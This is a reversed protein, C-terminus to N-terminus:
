DVTPVNVITHDRLYTTATIPTFEWSYDMGLGAGAINLVFGARTGTGSALYIPRTSASMTFDTVRSWIDFYPSDTQETVIPKAVVFGVTNVDQNSGTPYNGDVM